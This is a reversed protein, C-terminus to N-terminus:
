RDFLEPPPPENVVLWFMGIQEIVRRFQEFDVPKQAYANVGLKYSEILDRQEKSSTLVVIPISRTKPDARVAKLVELGDVRPLKLDLFVVKPPQAGVRNAFAGRCFIFDLAEKGDEAVQISNALKHRRLTRVTLEVDSPNDDVLLIDIGASM